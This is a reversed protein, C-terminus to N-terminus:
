TKELNKTSALVMGSWCTECIPLHAIRLRPGEKYDKLRVEYRAEKEGCLFCKGIPM